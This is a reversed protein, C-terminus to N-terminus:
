IGYVQFRQVPIANEHRIGTKQFENGRQMWKDSGKPM